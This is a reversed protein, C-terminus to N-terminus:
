IIKYLNIFFKDKNDKIFQMIDDNVDNILKIYTSGSGTMVLGFAGINEVLYEKFKKMDEDLSLVTDELANFLNEQISKVDNKEIANLLLNVDKEVVNNKDYSSFVSATLIHIKPHIILVQKNKLQNPIASINEGTKTVFAVDDVLCYPIDAGFMQGINQMDEISLGLEDLENIGKIVAAADSSNGGLGAGYPILKDIIIEIGHRIHYKDQLYRACQLIVNDQSSLFMDNSKIMVGTTLYCKKITINDFLDIKANVMELDHYGDKRKGIVNLFLNIKAYAKKKIM